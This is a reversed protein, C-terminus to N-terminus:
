KIGEFVDRNLKLDIFGKPTRIGLKDKRTHGWWDIWYAKDKLYDDYLENEHPERKYLFYCDCCYLENIDIIGKDVDEKMEHYKSKRELEVEWEKELFISEESTLLTNTIVVVFDIDHPNPVNTTFSGNILHRRISNVNDCLYKSYTIFGNFRSNRSNSKPFEDVLKKQIDIITCEHCGPYLNGNGDFELLDSSM